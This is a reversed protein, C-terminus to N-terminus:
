TQLNHFFFNSMQFGPLVYRGNIIDNDEIIAAAFAAPILILKLLLLIQSADMTTFKMQTVPVIM